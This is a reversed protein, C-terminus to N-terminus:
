GLLLCAPLCQLVKPPSHIFPTHMKLFSMKAATDSLSFQSSHPLFPLLTVLWSAMGRHLYSMTLGLGPIDCCQPPTQRITRLVQAPLPDALSTRSFATNPVIFGFPNSKNAARSYIRDRGWEKVVVPSLKRFQKKTTEM